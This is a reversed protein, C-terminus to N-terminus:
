LVTKIGSANVRGNLREFTATIPSAEVEANILDLPGFLSWAERWDARIDNLV